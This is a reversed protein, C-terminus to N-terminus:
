NKCYRIDLHDRSQTQDANKWTVFVRDRGTSRNGAHNCDEQTVVFAAGAKLEALRWSGGEMTISVIEPAQGGRAAFADLIPRTMAGLQPRVDYPLGDEMGDEGAHEDCDRDDPIGDGDHDESDGDHGDASASRDDAADHPDGDGDEDIDQCPNAGSGSGAGDGPECRGVAGTGPDVTCTILQGKTSTSTSSCAALTAAPLFAMLTFSLIRLQM